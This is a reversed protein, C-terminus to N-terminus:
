LASSLKITSNYKKLAYGADFAIRLTSEIKPKNRRTTSAFM